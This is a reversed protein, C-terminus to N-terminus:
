DEDDYDEDDDQEVLFQQLDEGSRYSEGQVTITVYQGYEDTTALVSVKDVQILFMQWFINQLKLNIEDQSLSTFDSTDIIDKWNENSNQEKNDHM